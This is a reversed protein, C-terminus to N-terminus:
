GLSGPEYEYRTCKWQPRTVEPAAPEFRCFLFVARKHGAEESHRCSQCKGLFFSEDATLFPPNM